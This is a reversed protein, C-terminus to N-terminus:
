NALWLAATIAAALLLVTLVIGALVWRGVRKQDAERAGRERGWAAELETRALSADGHGAAAARAEVALRTVVGIRHALDACFRLVDAAVRPDVLWGDVGLTVHGRGIDLTAAHHALLWELRPADLLALVLERPAGQLCYAADFAAVSTSLKAGASWGRLLEVRVPETELRAEFRTEHWTGADSVLRQSLVATVPLGDLVGTLELVRGSAGSVLLDSTGPHWTVQPPADLTGGLGTALAQLQAVSYPGHLPFEPVGEM